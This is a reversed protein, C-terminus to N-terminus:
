VLQAPTTVLLAAPETGPGVEHAQIQTRLLGPELRYQSSIHSQAPRLRPLEVLLILCPIALSHATKLRRHECAVTTVAPEAEPVPYTDAHPV